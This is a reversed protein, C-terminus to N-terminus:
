DSARAFTCLLPGTASTHLLEEYVREREVECVCEREREFAGSGETVCKGSM